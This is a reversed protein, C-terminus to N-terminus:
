QKKLLAVTHEISSADHWDGHGPIVIEPKPFRTIMKQLSRKWQKVDADELNGLGPAAADKIFCGGFLLDHQPLYIVINDPSHGPGPYFCQFKTLGFVFTEDDDVPIYTYTLNYKRKLESATRNNYLFKIPSYSSIYAPIGGSRDNHAHTIFCATPFLHLLQMWEKIISAQLSDFGADILVAGGSTLVILSSAPFPRGNLMTYTTAVFLSDTIKEIKPLPTLKINQREAILTVLHATDLPQIMGGFTFNQVSFRGENTSISLSRRWQSAATGIPPKFRLEFYGEEGPAYRTQTIYAGSLGGDSTKIDKIELTSDGINKFRFRFTSLVETPIPAIRLCSTDLQFKPQAYINSGICFLFLTLSYYLSYGIKM